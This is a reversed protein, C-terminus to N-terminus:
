EETKLIRWLSDKQHHLILIMMVKKEKVMMQWQIMLQLTMKVKRSSMQYVWSLVFKWWIMAESRSITARFKMSFYVMHELMNSYATQFCNRWNIWQVYFLHFTRSMVQLYIWFQEHQNFVDTWSLVLQYLSVHVTENPLPQGPFRHGIDREFQTGELIVAFFEGTMAIYRLLEQRHGVPEGAFPRAVEDAPIRPNDGSGCRESHSRVRARLEREEESTTTHEDDDMDGSAMLAGQDESPAQGDRGSGSRAMNRVMSSIVVLLICASVWALWSYDSSADDVTGTSQSGAVPLGALAVLAGMVSGSIKPIPPMFKLVERDDTIGIISMLLERRARALKKTNLDSPNYTTPVKQLRIYRKRLM